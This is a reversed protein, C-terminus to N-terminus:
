VLIMLFGRHIARLDAIQLVIDRVGIQTLIDFLNVPETLQPADAASGPILIYSERGLQQLVAFCRERRQEVLDGRGL